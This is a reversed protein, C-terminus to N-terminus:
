CAEGYISDMCMCHKSFAVRSCKIAVRRQRILVNFYCALLLIRPINESVSVLLLQWTVLLSCIFKESLFASRRGRLASAHVRTCFGAGQLLCKLPTGCILVVTLSGCMCFKVALIEDGQFTAVTLCHLVLVPSPPIGTSGNECSAHM